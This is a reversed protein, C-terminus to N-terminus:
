QERELCVGSDRSSLRKTRIQLEKKLHDRQESLKQREKQIRGTRGGPPSGQGVKPREEPNEVTDSFSNDAQKYGGRELDEELLCSFPGSSFFLNRDFGLGRFIREMHM